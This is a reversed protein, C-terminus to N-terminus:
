LKNRKMNTIRKHADSIIGTLHFRHHLYKFASRVPNFKSKSKRPILRSYLRGQIPHRSVYLKM